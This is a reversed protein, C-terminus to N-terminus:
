ILGPDHVDRAGYISTHTHRLAVDKATPSVVSLALCDRGFNM